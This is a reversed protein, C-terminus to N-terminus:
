LINNEANKRKPNITIFPRYIAYRTDAVFIVFEGSVFLISDYVLGM